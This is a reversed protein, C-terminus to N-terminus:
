MLSIHKVAVLVAQMMKAMLVLLLMIEQYQLQTVLYIVPVQVIIMLIM